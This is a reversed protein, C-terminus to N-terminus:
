EVLTLPALRQKDWFEPDHGVFVRVGENSLRRLTALSATFAEADYTLDPSPLAEDSLLTQHMYCADAALVVTGSEQRVRMSQHGATHGPTPFLGVTGDGFVDHEGDLMQITQGTEFDVRRYGPSDVPAERASELEARQLLVRAQPFQANGGCHDYHLHSNIVLTVAAPDFGAASMQAALEQDPTFHFEVPELEAPPYYGELDTHVARSFGSDFVILGKPHDIVYSPIPFTIRGQSGDIFRDRPITHRGCIFAYVKPLTPM